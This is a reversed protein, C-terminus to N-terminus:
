KSPAADTEKWLDSRLMSYGVMDRWRGARYAAGRVIGERTFGAKELARQEALNETETHAEVRYAHTYGFLYEVLTRQAATGYGHGQAETLLSIGINWTFSLPGTTSRHWSVSGVAHGEVVVALTGQDDTLLGNEAFARRRDHGSGYGYFSFDSAEAPDAKLRELM